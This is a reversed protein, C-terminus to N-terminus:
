TLGISCNIDTVLEQFVEMLCNLETPKAKGKIYLKSKKRHLRIFFFLNSQIM